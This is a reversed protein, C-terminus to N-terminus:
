FCDSIQAEHYMYVLTTYFIAKFNYTIFNFDCAKQEGVILLKDNCVYETEKIFYNQITRANQNTQLHTKMASSFCSFHHSYHPEVTESNHSNVTRVEHITKRKTLLSFSLKIFFYFM